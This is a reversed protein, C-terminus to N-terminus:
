FSPDVDAPTSQEVIEGPDAEAPNSEIRDSMLIMLTGTVLTAVTLAFVGYALRAHLGRVSTKGRFTMWGTILPGLYAVVCIKALTLHFPTMWGAATLDYLTGLQEAFYITTGLSALTLVVLALHLRRKGARGTAIVSVLLAVTLTLFVLFGFTIHSM